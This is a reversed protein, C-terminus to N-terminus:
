IFPIPIEDIVIRHGEDEFVGKEELCKLVHSSNKECVKLFINLVNEVGADSRAYILAFNSPLYVDHLIPLNRLNYRDHNDRDYDTILAFRRNINARKSNVRQILALWGFREAPIGPPCNRFLIMGDLRYKVEYKDSGAVGRVAGQVLSCASIKDGKILKTNTDIAFINDFKSSLYRMLHDIGPIVRDQIRTIVKEKGSEGLYRTQSFTKVPITRGNTTLGMFEMKDKDYYVGKLPTPSGVM